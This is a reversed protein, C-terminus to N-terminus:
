NILKADVFFVSEMKIHHDSTIVEDTVTNLRIDFEDKKIYEQLDEDSLDLEIYDGVSDPINEKWAVKIEDLGDANLFIHIENLFSFDGNQPQTVTLNLEKLKIQEIKDKRTDNIAFTSESNSEIDPSTVNFPLDVGVSSPIVFTEEYDMDFNVGKGGCASIFLPVIIFLKVLKKKM